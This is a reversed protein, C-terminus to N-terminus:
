MKIFFTVTNYSSKKTNCQTDYGVCVSSFAYHLIPTVTISTVRSSVWDRTMLRMQNPDYRGVNHNTDCMPNLIVVIDGIM